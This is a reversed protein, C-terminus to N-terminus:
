PNFRQDPFDTLKGTAVELVAISQAYNSERTGFGANLVAVYKGNPSAAMAAPFSNTRQPAGPVAYLMKSTSLPIPAPQNKASTQASLPLVASALVVSLLLEKM